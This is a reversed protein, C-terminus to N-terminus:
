KGGIQENPWTRTELFFFFFVECIEKQLVHCKHAVALKHFIALVVQVVGDAAHPSSLFRGPSQLTIKLKTRVLMKQLLKM